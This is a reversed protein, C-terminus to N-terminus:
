SSTFVNRLDKFADLKKFKADSYIYQDCDGSFETTWSIYTEDTETVEHLHITHLVSSVNLAADTEILEYSVARQIDSLEVLRFVFEAGDKYVVRRLSGVACACTFACADNIPVTRYKVEEFTVAEGFEPAEVQENEPVLLSCSVVSSPTIRSFDLQRILSWVKSARAQLVASETNRCVILSSM